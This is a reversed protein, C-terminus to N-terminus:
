VKVRRGTLVVLASAVSAAVTCVSVFVQLMKFGYGGFHMNPDLSAKGTDYLLGAILPGVVISAGRVLYNAAWIISMQEPKDVACDCVSVPGTSFYGGTQILLLIGQKLWARSSPPHLLGVLGGYVVAFAFLMGLMHAFGWLVFVAIGSILTSAGMIWAYPFRNCMHALVVQCVFSSSNLIALVILASFPTAIVKAFTTIYLSM